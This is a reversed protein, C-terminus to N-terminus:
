LSPVYFNGTNTLTPNIKRQSWIRIPIARVIATHQSKRDVLLEIALVPQQINFEAICPDSTPNRHPMKEDRYGIVICPAVAGPNDFGARKM